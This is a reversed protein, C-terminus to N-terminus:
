WNAVSGDEYHWTPGKWTTKRRSQERVYSEDVQIGLGPAPDLTIFGDDISMFSGDDLYSFFQSAPDAYFKGHLEQLSANPVAYHVQMSAAFSIPGVSCKPMLTMDFAEAMKGITVVESIGGAHSIAPQVIDVTGDGFLERFDWRSYMRQGTAIPTNTGGTLDRLNGNYEPHVPEEIFMLNYPELSGILRRAVGTSVRGRFDVAIDVQDGVAEDVTRVRSLVRSVVENTRIRAPRTHAMLGLATCGEEVAQHAEAVIDDPSDGSLWRYTRVKNRIPGGLLEHVARGAAKGKIDWLAQDIGAIASMLLPGGNYHDARYMRYWTDTNKRPDSGLVYDEVLESVAATLTDSRGELAPEGWGVTGEDTELRLFVWRPPVSFLEYDIVEM